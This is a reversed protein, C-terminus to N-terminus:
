YLNRNQEQTPFASGHPQDSSLSPGLPGAQTQPGQPTQSYCALRRRTTSRPQPERATCATTSQIKSRTRNSSTFFLFICRNLFMNNLSFSKKFLRCSSLCLQCFPGSYRIYYRYYFRKCSIFINCLITYYTNHSNNKSKSSDVVPYLVSFKYKKIQITKNYRQFKEVQIKNVSVVIICDFIFIFKLM